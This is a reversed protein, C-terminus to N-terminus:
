SEDGLFAALRDAWLLAHPDLGRGRGIAERLLARAKLLERGLARVDACHEDITAAAKYEARDIAAQIEADTM